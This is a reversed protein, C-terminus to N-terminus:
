EETFPSKTSLIQPQLPQNFTLTHFWVRGTVVMCIREWWSMKWCTIVRGDESRYAPLPLYPKQDKAYVTNQGEFSVPIM